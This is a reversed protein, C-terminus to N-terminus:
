AFLSLIVFIKFRLFILTPPKLQRQSGFFVDYLVYTTIAQHPLLKPRTGPGGIRETSWWWAGRRRMGDCFSCPAVIARSPETRDSLQSRDLPLPSASFSGGAMQDLRGNVTPTLILYKGGCAAQVPTRFDFGHASYVLCLVVCLM